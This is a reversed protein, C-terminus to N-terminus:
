NTPKAYRADAIKADSNLSQFIPVVDGIIPQYVPATAAGNPPQNIPATSEKSRNEATPHPFTLAGASHNAPSVPHKYISAYYHEEPKLDRANDRRM